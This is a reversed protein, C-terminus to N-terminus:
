SGQWIPNKFLSSARVKSEIQRIKGVAQEEDLGYIFLDIDSAPALQEHYYQRQARKSENHPAQEYRM